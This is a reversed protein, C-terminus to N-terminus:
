GSAGDCFVPEALLLDVESTEAPVHHFIHRPWVDVLAKTEFYSGAHHLSLPAAPAGASTVLHLLCSLASQGSRCLVRWSKWGDPTPHDLVGREELMSADLDREYGFSVSDGGPMRATTGVCPSKLTTDAPKHAREFWARRLALATADLDEDCDLSASYAPLGSRLALNNLDRADSSKNKM